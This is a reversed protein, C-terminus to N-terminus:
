EQMLVWHLHWIPKVHQSLQQQLLQCPLLPGPVSFIVLSIGQVAGSTRQVYLFASPFPLQFQFGGAGPLRM